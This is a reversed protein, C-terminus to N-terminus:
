GSHDHFIGTTCHLQWGRHACPARLALTHPQNGLVLLENLSGPQPAPAQPPVIVVVQGSRPPPSITTQPRTMAAPSTINFYPECPTQPTTVDEDVVVTTAITRAGAAPTPLPLQHGIRDPPRDGDRELSACAHATTPLTDDAQPTTPLPEGSRPTADHDPRTSSAPQPTGTTEPRSPLTNSSATHEALPPNNATPVAIVAHHHATTGFLQAAVEQIAEGLKGFEFVGRLLEACNGDHEFPCLPPGETGDLLLALQACEHTVAAIEPPPLTNLVFSTWRERVAESAAGTTGLTINLAECVANAERVSWRKWHRLVLETRTADEPGPADCVLACLLPLLVAIRL